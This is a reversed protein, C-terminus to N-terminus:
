LGSRFYIVIKCTPFKYPSTFCVHWKLVELYCVLQAQFPKLGRKVSLTLMGGMMCTTGPYSPILLYYNLDLIEAEPIEKVGNICCMNFNHLKM